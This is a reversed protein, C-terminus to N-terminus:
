ILLLGFDPQPHRWQKFRYAKWCRVTPAGRIARSDYWDNLKGGFSRLTSRRSSVKVEFHIGVAVVDPEEPTYPEDCFEADPEDDYGDYPGPEPCDPFTAVTQDADAWDTTDEIDDVAIFGEPATEAFSDDDFPLDFAASIGMVARANTALIRTTINGDPVWSKGPRYEQSWEDAVFDYSHVFM